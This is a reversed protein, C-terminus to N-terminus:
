FLAIESFSQYKDTENIGSERKSSISEYYYFGDDEVASVYVFVYPSLKKKTSHCEVLGEGTATNGVFKFKHDKLLWFFYFSSLFKEKTMKFRWQLSEEEKPLDHAAVGKGANKM